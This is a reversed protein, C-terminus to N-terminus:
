TCQVIKITTNTIYQNVNVKIIGYEQIVSIVSDSHTYLFDHNGGIFDTLSGQLYVYNGTKPTINPNADWTDAEIYELDKEWHIAGRFSGSSNICKQEFRLDISELYDGKYSLDDVVIWGSWDDCFVTVDGWTFSGNM